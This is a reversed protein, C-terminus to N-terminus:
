ADAEGVIRIFIEELSPTALEYRDVRVGADLLERLMIEPATGPRLRILHGRGREAVEVASGPSTFPAATELYVANDAYQLKIDLLPGNLVTAGRNIMVVNDCLEEVDTMQHTSFLISTGQQNLEGMVEKMIRANVPDLGSFPEDLVIFSPRHLVTAAFQVLQGMGRSLERVKKNAHEAMGVRELMEYARTQAEARAIGKLEALYVLTPLVRQGKYLGREEPLYGIKAQAAQSIRGGFLRVTGRDPRIIDLVMRITTTKGSGNPGVLGLMQGREVALSVGQVVDRDGYRKWLDTAEVSPMTLPTTMTAGQPAELTGAPNLPRPAELPSCRCGQFKPAHGFFSSNPAGMRLGLVFDVM